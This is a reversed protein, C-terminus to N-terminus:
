DNIGPVIYFSIQSGSIHCRREVGEPITCSDEGQM